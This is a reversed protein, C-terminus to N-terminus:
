QEGMKDMWHIEPEKKDPKRDILYRVFLYGGLGFLFVTLERLPNAMLAQNVQANFQKSVADFNGNAKSLISMDVVDRCFLAIVIYLGIGEAIIYSIVTVVGWLLGNQGKLKAKASNRYGLLCLILIGVIDM